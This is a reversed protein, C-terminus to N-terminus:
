PTVICRRVVSGPVDGDPGLVINGPEGSSFDNCGECAPLPFQTITGSTTIRGIKNGVDETFWLAGDPGTAIGYPNSEEGLSGFETLEGSTTIRAIQNPGRDETFWLAGDPGTTIVLPHSSPAPLRFETIVGEPTIRGIKNGPIRYETFWVNGDPGATIGAPGANTSVPFESFTQGAAYPVGLLLFFAGALKM